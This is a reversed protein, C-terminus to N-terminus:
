GGEAHGLGLLGRVQLADSLSRRHVAAKAKQLSTASEPDVFTILARASGDTHAYLAFMVPGELKLKLEELDGSGTAAVSLKNRTGGYGVLM